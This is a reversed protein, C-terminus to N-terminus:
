LVMNSSTSPVEAVKIPTTPIALSAVVSNIEAVVNKGYKITLASQSPLLVVLLHDM